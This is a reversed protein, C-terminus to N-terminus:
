VEGTTGTRVTAIGREVWGARGRTGVDEGMWWRWGAVPLISAVRWLVDIFGDIDQIKAM